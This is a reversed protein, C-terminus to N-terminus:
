GGFYENYMQRMPEINADFRDDRNSVQSMYIQKAEYPAILVKTTPTKLYPFNTGAPIEKLTKPTRHLQNITAVLAKESSPGYYLIRHKYGNQAHIRDILQQPDLSNLEAE